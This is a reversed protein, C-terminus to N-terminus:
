KVTEAGRLPARGAALHSATPCVRSKARRRDSHLAWRSATPNVMESGTTPVRSKARRRDSHLAWCSATPNVMESGTTPVRMRHLVLLLMHTRSYPRFKPIDSQDLYDLNQDKDLDM